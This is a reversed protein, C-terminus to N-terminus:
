CYNNNYTSCPATLYFQFHIQFILWTIAAFLLAHIHEVNWGPSSFMIDRNTWCAACGTGAQNISAWVGATGAKQTESSIIFVFWFLTVEFRFWSHGTQLFLLCRLQPRRYVSCLWSDAWVPAPWAPPRPLLLKWPPAPGDTLGLWGQASGAPSGIMWINDCHKLDGYFVTSLVLM